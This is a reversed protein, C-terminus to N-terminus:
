FSVMPHSGLSKGGVEKEPGDKLRDSFQWEPVCRETLNTLSNGQCAVACPNPLNLHEKHAERGLASMRAMGNQETTM